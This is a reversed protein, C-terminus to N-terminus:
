FLIKQTHTRVLLTIAQFRDFMFGPAATGTVTVAGRKKKEDSMGGQGQLRRKQSIAGASHQLLNLNRERGYATTAQQPIMECVQDLNNRRRRRERRYASSVTM